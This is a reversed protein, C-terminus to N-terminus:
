AIVSLAIVIMDTRINNVLLLNLLLYLATERHGHLNSFTRSFIQFFYEFVFFRLRKSNIRRRSDQYFETRIQGRFRFCLVDNTAKM